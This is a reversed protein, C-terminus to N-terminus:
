GKLDENPIVEFQFGRGESYEGLIILLRKYKSYTKWEKFHGQAPKKLLFDITERSLDINKYCSQYDRSEHNIEKIGSFKDNPVDWSVYVKSKSENTTVKPGGIKGNLFIQLHVSGLTNFDIKDKKPSEGIKVVKKPEGKKVLKKAM